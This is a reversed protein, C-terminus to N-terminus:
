CSPDTSAQHTQALTMPLLLLPVKLTTLKKLAEEANQITPEQETADAQIMAFAAKITAQVAHADADKAYDLLKPRWKGRKLKWEVQICCHQMTPPAHKVAM